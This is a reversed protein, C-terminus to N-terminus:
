RAGPGTQRGVNARDLHPLRARAPGGGGYRGAPVGAEHWGSLVRAIGHGDVATGRLGGRHRDAPESLRGPEGLWIQPNGTQDTVFAYQTKGPLVAPDYENRTSRLFPKLPSGDIPVEFLDFDTADWAFAVTRGDPSVAPSSENGPTITLPYASRGRRRVPPRRITRIWSGCIIAQRRVMPERSWCTDITPCGASPRRRSARGASDPCSPGRSATPCPSTWLLGIPRRREVRDVVVSTVRGPLSASEWQFWDPERPDGALVTAEKGDPLTKSWFTTSVGEGRARLFYITKGSPLIASRSADEIVTDPRAGPVPSIRFLDETDRARSHYYIYGDASWAAIYCDFRSTTIQTRTASGPTRTFIQIVGDVEAQYAIQKGDSSWTPASQYGPDTAFPTFKDFGATAQQPALATGLLLGAAVLAVGAAPILWRRSRVRRLRCPRRRRKRSIAAYRGCNRRSIRPTRM